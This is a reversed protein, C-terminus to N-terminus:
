AVALALVTLAMVATAAWGLRRLKPGIVHRGMVAPRTALVMMAAMIPVATIGNFVASWFLQRVPDMPAFCLAVGGLTAVAIVGYFGRGEGRELRLSLSDRWGAVEAVAYGASGALVPVALLGTGIIGLSFLLAAHAGAVPRLAEVAQASTDIQHVGAKHLTAATALMICFAILNSFLMGVHTDLKIRHLHARVQETTPAAQGDAQRDEVEQGAQWFFLYPSITTGFVAVVMLLTDRNWDLRPHVTRALVDAWDLNLVAVVGVYALLALTLWKLWRVYSEYRLFVQMLVSAIGFALAYAQTPGGILLHVAAAMAAVDAAINLTNAALLLGVLGFLVPRPFAQKMNAALGRGSVYGIRASVIQIATMLPLTFVLSWLMSYGFRAGAQSYTAIGSPDDDAAGTILGPGLQRLWDRLVKM